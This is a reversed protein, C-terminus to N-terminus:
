MRPQLSPFQLQDQLAIDLLSQVGLVNTKDSVPIMVPEMADLHPISATQSSAPCPRSSIPPHKSYFLSLTTFLLILLVAIGLAVLVAVSPM